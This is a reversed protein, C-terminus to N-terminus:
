DVAPFEITELDLDLAHCVSPETVKLMELLREETQGLDGQSEGDLTLEEEDAVIESPAYGNDEIVSLQATAVEPLEGEPVQPAFSEDVGGGYSTVSSHENGTPATAPAPASETSPSESAQASPEDVALQAGTEWPAPPATEGRAARKEGTSKWKSRDVDLGRVQRRAAHGKGEIAWSTDKQIALSGLRELATRLQRILHVAVLTQFAIAWPEGKGLAVELQQRELGFVEVAGQAIVDATREQDKVLGSQGFLTGSSLTALRVRRGDPLRKTVRAEGEVLFFCSEGPAGERCLLSGSRYRAPELNAALGALLTDPLGALAQFRVLTKADVGM